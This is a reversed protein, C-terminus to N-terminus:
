AGCPMANESSMPACTVCRQSRVAHCERAQNGANGRTVAPQDHVDRM